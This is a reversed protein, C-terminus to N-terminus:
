DGKEILLDFRDKGDIFDIKITQYLINISSLEPFETLRVADKETTIIADLHNNTYYEILKNIDNKSFSHHDPFKFHKLIHYNEDLYDILLKPKAIGTLVAISSINKPMENDFLPFLVGYSIRSFCVKNIGYNYIKQKIVDIEEITLNDPCKTVVVVDSRKIGDRFERLRGSPIVYDNFFLQRYDTLTVYIDAKIYRHQFADDLIVIDYNRNTAIINKVGEVRKECVFVDVADKFKLYYQMPEDGILNYNSSKDASLYGKTKRGYGRSLIALKCDDKLLNAVYEVHPTKGTGGVSLNGVVITKLGEFHESKLVGKDFFYNRCKTILGYIISIPLLLIKIITRM